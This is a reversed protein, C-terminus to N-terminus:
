YKKPNIINNKTFLLKIKKDHEEAPISEVLQFDYVLSVRQVKPYKELFRDYYGRGFGIRNGERDFAIGPVIILDIEKEYPEGVPEIIGMSGKQFNGSYEVAEINEKDKIRPLILKKGSTIVAENIKHTDVENKFSMYSMVVKAKQFSESTVFKEYIKESTEKVEVVPLQERQEKIQKRISKKEM